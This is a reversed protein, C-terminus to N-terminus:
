LAIGKHPATVLSVSGPGAALRQVRRSGAAVGASSEPTSPQRTPPGSCVRSPRLYFFLDIASSLSLSLSFRSTPIYAPAALSAIVAGEGQSRVRVSLTSVTSPLLRHTFPAFTTMFISYHIFLNHYFYSPLFIAFFTCFFLFLKLLEYDSFIGTLLSYWSIMPPFSSQIVTSVARLHYPVRNSFRHVCLAFSPNCRLLCVPFLSHLVSIGHFPLPIIRLRSILAAPPM